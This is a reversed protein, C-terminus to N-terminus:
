VWYEAKTNRSRRGEEHSTGSMDTPLWTFCCSMYKRTRRM